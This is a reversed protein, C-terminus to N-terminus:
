RRRGPWPEAFVRHWNPSWADPPDFCLRLLELEEAPTLAASGREDRTVDTDSAEVLLAGDRDALVQVCRHPHTGEVIAYVRRRVALADVLERLSHFLGDLTDTRLTVDSCAPCPADVEAVEACPLFPGTTV